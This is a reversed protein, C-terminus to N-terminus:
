QLPKRGPKLRIGNLYSLIADEPTMGVIRVRYRMLPANLGLKRCIFGLSGTIGKITYKTFRKPQRKNQAQQELTAWRCNSKEYNGDNDIRDIERNEPCPGMDRFFNEFSKVWSPDVTIGRGGYNKYAPNKPNLCRAKMGLWSIHEPSKSMGHTRNFDNVIKTGVCRCSKSIGHTLSTGVVEKEKGCACICLWCAKGNRNPARQKVTWLGFRQGSLDKFKM